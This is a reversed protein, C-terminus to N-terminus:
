GAGSRRVPPRMAPLLHNAFLDEIEQAQEEAPRKLRRWRATTVIVLERAPWVILNQGGFGRGGFIPPEAAIWWFYGYRLGRNDVHARTARDVWDTSVVRRRDYVGGQLFTEGLKVLDRPRLELGATGNHYGGALQEWRAGRIGLPAFLHREAFALASMGTTQALVVSLLHSAASYTYMGGPTSTLPRGLLDEVRGGAQWWRGYEQPNKASDWRIGSTMTLLHHLTIRGKDEAGALLRPPLVDGLTQDVRLQGQDVAIGILTSLVNKTVSRVDDLGDAGRDHFYAEAVLEGGHSVLLSRLGSVQRARVFARALERGDFGHDEVDDALFIAGASGGHAGVTFLLTLPALLTLLLISGPRRRANM